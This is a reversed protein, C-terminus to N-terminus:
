TSAYINRLVLEIYEIFEENSLNYYMSIIEDKYEHIWKVLDQALYHIEIESLPMYVELPLNM